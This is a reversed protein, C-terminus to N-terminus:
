LLDGLQQRLRRLVRSRVQRVAASTIGFQEAVVSTAIQDVVTRCFVEWTRTEFESRVQQLARQTLQSLEVDSTPEELPPDSVAIQQLSRLASSGGAALPHRQAARAADRIKNATVSWLWARFSGAQRQPTFSPLARSVSAFVEQVCDATAHSDMRCKLCWSAVLPGYLDVLERWAAPQGARARSVLSMRTANSDQTSTM